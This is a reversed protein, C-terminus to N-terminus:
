LKKVLEIAKTLDTRMKEKDAVGLRTELVQQYSNIAAVKELEKIGDALPDRMRRDAEDKKIELDQINRTARDEDRIAAEYRAKMSNDTVIVKEWDFYVNDHYHHTYHHGCEDCYGTWSNMACCGNRIDEKTYSVVSCNYDCVRLCGPYGCITNRDYSSRKKVRQQEEREYNENSRKVNRAEALKQEEQKIEKESAMLEEHEKVSAPILGEVRERKKCLDMVDGITQVPEFEVIKEFMEELVRGASQFKSKLENAIAENTKGSSQAKEFRCYPNDISLFNKLKTCGGVDPVSTKNTFIVVINDVISEPLIISIESLVLGIKATSQRGNIILCICNINSVSSLNDAINRIIANDADTGRLTGVGPRSTVRIKWDGIPVEHEAAGSTTFSHFQEISRKYGKTMVLGYNCLLNVFSKMGSGVEGVLLMNYPTKWQKKTALKDAM